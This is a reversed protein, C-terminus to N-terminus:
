DDDQRARVRRPSAPASQTGSKTRKGKKRHRSQLMEPQKIASNLDSKLQIFKRVSYKLRMCCIPARPEQLSGEYLASRCVEFLLGKQILRRPRM